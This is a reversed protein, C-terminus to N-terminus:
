IPRWDLRPDGYPHDYIEHGPDGGFKARFLASYHQFTHGNEWNRREDSKITASGEHTIGPVEAQVRQWGSREWRVRLDGDCFYDHFRTDCGGIDALAVTSIAWLIDHFTYWCCARKGAALDARAAALLTSVAAPNTSLADAHFHLILPKQKRQADALMWNISQSYHLPVPPRWWRPFDRGRDRDKPWALDLVPAGEASNDVITCDDWLDPFCNLARTLLDPRNVFFCYAAWDRM